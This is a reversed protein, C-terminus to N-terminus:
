HGVQILRGWIPVDAVSKAVELHIRNNQLIAVADAKPNAVDLSEIFM